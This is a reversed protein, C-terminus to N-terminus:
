PNGFRLLPVNYLDPNRDRRMRPRAVEVFMMETLFLVRADLLHSTDGVAGREKLEISVHIHPQIKNEDPDFAVTGSGMAEVNTLYVSDWLACRSQRDKRLDRRNKGRRLRRHLDPHHGAHRQERPSDTLATFFDDAHDFTVGFTRGIRLQHSRVQDDGPHKPGLGPHM